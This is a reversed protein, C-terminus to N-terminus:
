PCGSHGGWCMCRRGWAVGSGHGRSEAGCCVEKARPKLKEISFDSNAVFTKRSNVAMFKNLVERTGEDNLDATTVGAMGFVRQYEPPLESLEMTGNDGVGSGHTHSWACGFWM